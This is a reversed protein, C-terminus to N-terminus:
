RAVLFGGPATERPRGPEALVALDVSIELGIEELASHLKPRTVGHIRTGFRHGRVDGGPEMRRAHKMPM